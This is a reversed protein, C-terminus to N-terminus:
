LQLGLRLMFTTQDYEGSINEVEKQKYGLQGAVYVNPNFAYTVRGWGEGYLTSQDTGEYKDQSLGVYGSLLVNRRLEYRTLLNASLRKIGSANRTTTEAVTHELTPVILTQPTPTWNFTARVMPGSVDSLQADNYDQRMYGVLFDGRVLSSVDVAVGTLIRQGTSSRDYGNRDRSLRYERKNGGVELVAGYSPFMEYLGRVSGSFEDRERDANSLMTGNAGAVNSFELRKANGEGSLVFAGFRHKAGLQGETVYTDTPERGGAEDPSGRDESSKAYQALGNIETDSSVDFRGTVYARTDFHDEDNHAAYTYNEARVAMNLMHRDFRSNLVLEPRAVTIFDGKTDDKTSYINNNFVEDVEMKPLLLFQGLEVGKPQYSEDLRDGDTKNRDEKAGAEPQAVVTASNARRPDNATDGSTQSWAPAAALVSLLSGLALRRVRRNLRADNTMMRKGNPAARFMRQAVLNHFLLLAM